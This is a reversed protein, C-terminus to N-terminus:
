MEGLYKKLEIQMKKDFKDMLRLITDKNDKIKLADFMMKLNLQEM